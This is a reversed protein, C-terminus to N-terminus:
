IINRRGALNRSKVTGIKRGPFFLNEEVKLFKFKPVDRERRFIGSVMAPQSFVVFCKGEDVVTTGTFRLFKNVVGSRSYVCSIGKGTVKMLRRSGCEVLKEIIETAQSFSGPFTDLLVHSPGFRNSTGNPSHALCTSIPIENVTQKGTEGRRKICSSIM